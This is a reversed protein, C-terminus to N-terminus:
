EFLEALKKQLDEGQLNKAIVIGDKDILINSPVSAVKLMQSVENEWGNLDSVHNWELKDDKIAKLWSKKEHDLSVALIDFGKAKYKNYATVVNPNEKRCPICWSAWFDILVYKGKFDGISAQNGFQNQQTFDPIKDGVKVDIRKLYRNKIKLGYDSKKLEPSLGGYISSVNEKTYLALYASFFNTSIVNNPYVILLSDVIAKYKLDKEEQSISLSAINNVKQTLSDMIKHTMGAELIKGRINLGKFRGNFSATDLDLVTKGEDIWFPQVGVMDGTSPVKIIAEVPFDVKGEFHFNGNKSYVSDKEEGFYLFVKGKYRNVKGEVIFKKQGSVSTFCAVLLMLTLLNRM